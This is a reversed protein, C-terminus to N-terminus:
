QLAEPTSGCAPWVNGHYDAYPGPRLLGSSRPIVFTRYPAQIRLRRWLSASRPIPRGGLSRLLGFLPRHLHDTM